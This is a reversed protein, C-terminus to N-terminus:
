LLSCPIMFPVNLVKYHIYLIRMETVNNDLQNKNMLLISLKRGYLLFRSADLATWMTCCINDRVDFVLFYTYSTLLNQVHQWDQLIFYGSSSIWELIGRSAAEASFWLADSSTLSLNHKWRKSLIPSRSHENILHIFNM